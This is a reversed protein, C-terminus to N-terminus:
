SSFNCFRHLFVSVEAKVARTEEVPLADRVRFLGGAGGANVAGNALGGAIPLGGLLDGVLPLGLDSSTAAASEAESKAQKLNTEVILLLL